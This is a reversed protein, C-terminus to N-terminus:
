AKGNNRNRTAYFWYALISLLSLISITLSFIFIGKYWADEVLVIEASIGKYSSVHERELRACKWIFSHQFLGFVTLLFLSISSVGEFLGIKKRNDLWHQFRIVAIVLFFLVPVIIFRSSVRESNLLPIPLRSILLYFYNLSFLVMLLLPLDLQKFKLKSPLKYKTFRIIVGFYLVFLFGPLTLYIDYEWWGLTSFMSGMRETLHDQMLIFSRFLDIVTPYGSLYFSDYDWFAIASPFIRVAGLLLSLLLVLGIRSKEQWNFILFLVLFLILWQYLHAGGQLLILFLVLSLKIISKFGKKKELIELFFLLFFPLFFCSLWMLHGVALHAKLYGNFQFLFFLVLFSFLSLKFKKAILFCGLFGILYMLVTQFLIFEGIDLYKLLFLQPSFVIEPVALFRNTGQLEISVHFPFVGELLSQQYLSYYLREKPWDYASFSLEGYNVFYIWHCAGLVFLSIACIYFLSGPTKWIESSFLLHRIEKNKM